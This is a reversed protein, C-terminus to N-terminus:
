SVGDIAHSVFILVFRVALWETSEHCGSTNFAKAETTSGPHRWAHMCAAAMCACRWAHVGGHMCVAMCAHRWAHMVYLSADM